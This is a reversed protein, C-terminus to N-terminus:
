ESVGALKGTEGRARIAKAITEGPGQGGFEKADAVEACAEREEAVAEIIAAAIYFVTNKGVVRNKKLCDAMAKSARELPTM